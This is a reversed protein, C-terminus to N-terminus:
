GQLGLANTFQSAGGSQQMNMMFDELIAFASIVGILVAAGVGLGGFFDGVLALVTIAFAGSVAAVPIVRQLEKAVLVDRKGLITISQEKFQLAIDRPASGSIESWKNAFWVALAVVVVSFVVTRIPSLASNVLSASATLYSLIGSVPVLLNNNIDLAYAGIITRTLALELGLRELARVLIFGFVQVNGLVTYAFLLPLAGTYLLRIPYVNAMGRMKTSRIPIEIRFNQLFVAAFIAAVAVYFGIFNPLYLRSFSALILKYLAQPERIKFNRFLNTFAGYAEVRNLNALTFSEVGVISRVMNTAAQLALFCLIGSGFSYGKDFIEVMLTIIFSWGVVQCFIALYWSISALPNSLSLGQIASDYYGSFILGAAMAISLAISTLKQGTQFLERDNRLALNVNVLRCGVAVQWLFGATIVPLLGLEFLTAKEMGFISRFTFFPDLILLPASPKLGYLPLQGLLYIMGSGVTFMVKEDFPLGEVPVEVEPLVPM